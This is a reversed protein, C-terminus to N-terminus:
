RKAARERAAKMAEALNGSVDHQHEVKSKWSYGRRNNLWYEAAKVDPPIHEVTDARVVEGEFQMVKESEFSYGVARQYLAREVRDDAAEKGVKLAAAFEPFEHRWLYFTSQAVGLVDAIEKDTLGAHAMREAQRVYDPKFKSRPDIGERKTTTSDAKPQTAKKAAQKKGTM